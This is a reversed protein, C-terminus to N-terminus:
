VANEEQMFLQLDDQSASVGFSLLDIQGGAVLMKEIRDTNVFSGTNHVNSISNFLTSKGSGNPGAFCRLRKNGPM